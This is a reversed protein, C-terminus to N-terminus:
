VGKFPKVASSLVPTAVLIREIENRILNLCDNNTSTFLTHM